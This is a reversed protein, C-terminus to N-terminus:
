DKSLSGVKLTISFIAYPFYTAHLIFFSCFRPYKIAMKYYLNIFTKHSTEVSNKGDGQYQVFFCLPNVFDYLPYCRMKTICSTLGWSM